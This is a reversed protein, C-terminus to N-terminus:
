AVGDYVSKGQNEQRDSLMITIDSGTSSTGGHLCEAKTPDRVRPTTGRRGLSDEPHYGQGKKGEGGKAEALKPRFFQGFGALTM